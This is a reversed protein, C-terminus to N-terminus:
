RDVRKVWTLIAEARGIEQGKAVNKQTAVWVKPVVTGCTLLRSVLVSLNKETQTVM